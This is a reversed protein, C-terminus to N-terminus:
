STREGPMREMGPKVAILHARVYPVTGGEWEIEYPELWALQFHGEYGPRIYQAKSEHTYYFFSNLNWFSKHTPDQWAGRGETSPVEVFLWGGPALVRWAENMTHVPDALHEVIDVARLIGVEGATAPWAGNLDVSPTGHLDWSEYGEPKGFRGGLDVMRLGKDQAWREAMARIHRKYNSATGVQVEGNWVRCSNGPHTRYLYLCQDIHRMGRAGYAAYTRCVLDHDDAVWLAADHGGLAQYAGARWVRVHNPAWYVLRMSQPMPAFAVMEILRHGQHIFPRSAWGYRESYGSTAWTGDEFQASNSYAFQVAPDDFARAIEVLANPTVLDDADLEVLLEGCADEFGQRKLAGISARGEKMPGEYVSWRVRPDAGAWEPLEVGGNAVLIWEWRVDGQQNVLSARAEDLFRVHAPGVPTIISILAGM